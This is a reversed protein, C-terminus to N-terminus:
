IEEELLATLRRLNERTEAHTVQDVSDNFRTLLEMQRHRKEALHLCQEYYMLMEEGRRIMDHAAQRSGGSIEAIESLSFDEEYFLCLSLAQKETLLAAYLDYLEATETLKSIKDAATGKHKKVEQETM